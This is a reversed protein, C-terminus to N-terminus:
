QNAKKTHYNMFEAIAKRIMTIKQSAPIGPMDCIASLMGILHFPDAFDHNPHKPEM